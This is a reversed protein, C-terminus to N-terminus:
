LYTKRPICLFGLCLVVLGIGDFIIFRTIALDLMLHGDPLSRGIFTEGLLGVTQMICAQLYSTKYKLPDVLAFIYPVNWMMFLVAMARIVTIGPLGTLEFSSAYAAPSLLFVLACQLNLFLVIGVAARPIILGPYHELFKKKCM